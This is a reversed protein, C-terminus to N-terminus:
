PSFDQTVQLIRDFLRALVRVRVCVYARVANERTPAAYYACRRTAVRRENDM